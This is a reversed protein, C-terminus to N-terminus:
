PHHWYRSGDAATRREMGPLRRDPPRTNDEILSAIDSAVAACGAGSADASGPSPFCQTGARSMDVTEVGPLVLPAGDAVSGARAVGAHYRRAVELAPDSASAYLTVRRAMGSISDLQRALEAADMDPAVLVVEALEAGSAASSRLQELAVFLAQSGLGEAVLSLKRAGGSRVVQEVLQRLQTGSRRVSDSERSYSAVPGGSPWSFLLASAVGDLSVAFRAAGSVAADFATRYGHVVIVAHGGSGGRALAERALRTWEGEDLMEVAGVKTDASGGGEPPASVTVRGLMLTDGHTFGLKLPGDTSELKRNSALLLGIRRMALPEQRPAHPRGTPEVPEIPAAEATTLERQDHQGPISQTTGHETVAREPEAAASPVRAGQGTEPSFEGGRGSELRAAQPPTDPATPAAAVDPASPQKGPHVAARGDESRVAVAVDDLANPREVLAMAFVGAVAAAIGAALVGRFRFQRVLRVLGGVVFLAAAVGIAIFAWHLLQQALAEHLVHELAEAVVEM